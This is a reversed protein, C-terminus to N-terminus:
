SRRVIVVRFDGEGTLEIRQGRRMRAIREVSVATGVAATCDSAMDPTQISAKFRYNDPDNANGGYKHVEFRVNYTIPKSDVTSNCRSGLERGELSYRADQWRNVRAVGSWLREGRSTIEYDFTDIRASVRALKRMGEDSHINPACGNSLTLLAAFLSTSRWNM